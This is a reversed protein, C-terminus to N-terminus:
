EKINYNYGDKGYTFNVYEDTETKRIWTNCESCLGYGKDQNWWQRGRTIKGCCACYLSIIKRKM